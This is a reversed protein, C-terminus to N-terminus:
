RSLTDLALRHLRPDSAALITSRESLEAKLGDLTRGALDTVVGGVESIMLMGAAMDVARAPIPSCFVALAGTATAALSVAMSGVLRIKGARRLLPAVAFISEPTSEVGLLEIGHPSSLPTVRADGAFLGHGRRVTFLQGSAANKVVALRTTGLTPGDLLSLMVAFVPLGQKANLSGDLPDVLVLPFSAGHDVRGTEESLVSFREGRAALKALESLIIEEAVRDMEVTRDGGAGLGVERRGAETGALPALRREM